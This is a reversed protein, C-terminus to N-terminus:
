RRYNEMISDLGLQGDGSTEFSSRLMDASDWVDASDNEICLPCTTLLGESGRDVKIQMPKRTLLPLRSVALTSCGDPPNGLCDVTSFRARGRRRKFSRIRAGAHPCLRDNGTAEHMPFDSMMWSM